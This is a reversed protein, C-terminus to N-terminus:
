FRSERYAIKEWQLSLAEIQEQWYRETGFAPFAMKFAGDEWRRAIWAAFHIMRLARLPEILRLTTADFSRIEEYADIIDNRNQIAYEDDGGALMWFDQVPPAYLMDDFDIFYPEDGKWLINGSHCDGHLLLYEVGEFFPQIHDCLQNVLQEYRPEVTPPLLKNEKLFRLPERGYTDPGLKLRPKDKATAGVNHLRALFRGLRAKQEANLEPELRGPRKPFITYMVQNIEFLTEGDKGELPCVVPIEAAALAKLFDHEAQITARSWRGPRYFKIVLHPGEEMEIDYVRNEMANLALFRGTCRGGLWEAADFIIEPTIQLFNDLM